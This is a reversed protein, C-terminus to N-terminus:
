GNSRIVKNIYMYTNIHDLQLFQSTLLETNIFKCSKVWNLRQFKVGEYYCLPRNFIFKSFFVHKDFNVNLCCM